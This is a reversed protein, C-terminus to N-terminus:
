FKFSYLVSPVVPFLSVQIFTKRGKYHSVDMFFPNRRSYANYLGFSWKRMGWKKQKSFSVGLDLRHYARMRFANREGYLHIEKPNYSNNWSNFSRDVSLYSGIPLTLANGTGFVWAFSLDIKENFKYSTSLGIDHRRDYKYPFPHGNNLNQFQRSTWSLTYGIWGTFNGEKKQIFFEAGYSEGNGVEVKEQWKSDVNLYDAGEKYEIVNEMQKYYGEVSFEYSDHINRALGLAVQNSQQPRVKATVPVWLDTPLGIGANTLLHIFQTMRTFSAKLSLEPTILYRSSLRPQLSPYLVGEVQFASFHMGANIKLQSGAKFDDEIYSSFEYAYTHSAGYTTDTLETSKIGFAGPSFTHYIAGAGARIYHAPDPIFDFDAKAGWDEIGSHYQSYSYFYEDEATGSHAPINEFSNYINFRYRSYTLTFNSFLKPSVIHNWRLASTINGWRLGFNDKAKGSGFEYESKGYAKDNGLYASLYIRDNPGIKHNVKTNLDYFYYGVVVGESFAKFLPTTFLDIYTRRGSVIFSTRDKIIPGEFTLKSSILGISGEGVFEKMNGEKMNVDIVSSIRGGYRAPFGGKILEVHRIADANFVSFFGFLHSANYVPVGDLLILNQDPGGGRVYLGSSGESGSQVGPLLQLVKLVDVEGLLAPMSKIQAVPVQISSMQSSEQIAEEKATVVVEQLYSHGELEFHIVTDKKLYFHHETPKYGVYTGVLRVSDSPLTLSYFGFNNSSTGSLGPQSLVNAGILSEGSNKDKIYGSITYKQAMLASPILFIM